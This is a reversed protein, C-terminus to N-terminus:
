KGSALAVVNSLGAPITTQGYLNFGWAVVTGDNKQALSHSGGAAIAVVNSLALPVNAQGYGNYGWAVVTGDSKLALSHSGGGIAVVNSLGVPITTQGEVNRGWAAVKGDGKLAMSHSSGGAIALPPSAVTAGPDTFAFHCENTLVAGGNLTIVPSRFTVDSGRAVGLANSASVRGHYIIGPTLGTLNNSAALSASGNGVTVPATQQSYNFNTTGWEFWATTTLGNPNVTGNLRAISNSIGSAALTMVTPAAAHAPDACLTFALALFAPKLTKM